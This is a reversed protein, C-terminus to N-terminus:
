ISSTIPLDKEKSTLANVRIDVEAKSSLFM